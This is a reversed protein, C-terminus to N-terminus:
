PAAPIRIRVLLGRDQPRLLELRHADGYLQTLRARTNALGVGEHIQEPLGPGDDEIEITLQGGYLRARIDIRGPASSASVGHRIANEVLPQLLLNPVRVDLAANDIDFNVRLRDAFRAQQIEVYGSLFDLEQKLPVEQVGANDLTLRLLGSLRAMMRDAAEIDRHMLASIAHLTNFLFHPQLQLKLMQLQTQALLAERERYRRYYGILHSAGVIAGYTLVNSHLRFTTVAAPNFGLWGMIMGDAAMKAAGTTLGAATHVALNRLRHPKEVPFRRAMWLLGPTVVAWIYWEGASLLVAQGFTLSRRVYHATLYANVYNQSAFFLSLLTWAALACSWRVWRRSFM